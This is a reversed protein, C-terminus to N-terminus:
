IRGGSSEPGRFPAKGRDCSAKEAAGTVIAALHRQLDDASLFFTADDEGEDVVHRCPRGPEHELTLGADPLRREPKGADLVGVRPPHADERRPRRLGLAPERVQAEAIQELVNEVVDQGRKGSRPPARELDREEELLRGVIPDIRAREPDCGAARQLHEGFVPRQEHRDVIELPEVGRRRVREREGQAPETRARHKQEEGGAAGLSCHRSELPRDARVRDPTQRDPRETDAREMSEQAVPEVPGKRALGQEADVLPRAAIREERQLQGASEIRAGVRSPRKRNRLRQVLEHAHPQGPKRVRRPSCQRECRRQPRRRLREEVPGANRRLSEFRRDHRLHDFARAPRNAEGVRQERGNEVLVQAILSLVDVSPDRADDLIREEAGTVQRQRPALRVRVDGGLEVDGHCRRGLAPRRRDSGLEGLLREPECRRLAAIAM